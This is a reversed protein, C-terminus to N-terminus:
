FSIKRFAVMSKYTWAYYCKLMFINRQKAKMMRMFTCGLKKCFSVGHTVFSFWKLASMNSCLMEYLVCEITRGKFRGLKNWVLTNVVHIWAGVRGGQKRSASVSFTPSFEHCNNREEWVLLNHCFFHLSMNKFSKHNKDALNFPILLVM